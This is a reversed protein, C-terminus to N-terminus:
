PGTTPPTAPPPGTTTPPTATTTTTSTPAPAMAPRRRPAVAGVILLIIGVILLISGLVPSSGKVDVSASPGSSGNQTVIGAFVTAGLKSSWSFSGSTGNQFGIVKPGQCIHSFNTATLDLHNCSAVAFEISGSASWTLALQIQGTISFAATVNFIDPNSPTVKQSQTPVIPVFLLVAGIIIVVIGVILM